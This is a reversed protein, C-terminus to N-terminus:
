EHRHVGTGAVLTRWALEAAQKATAEEKRVTEWAAFILNDFVQVIWTTPIAEDFSGEKKAEDVIEAMEKAQRKYEAQLDPHEDIPECYLFWQRPALPIIAELMLKLAETYSSANEAAREAAVELENMATKTLELLLDDRGSFHRHLTARGIGAREAIDALSASPSESYLQFAAEIIADKTSPRITNM